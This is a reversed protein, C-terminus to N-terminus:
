KPNSQQNRIMGRLFTECKDLQEVAVYEDPRHAQAIDGPGCVIAPV